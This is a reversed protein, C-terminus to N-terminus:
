GPWDIRDPGLESVDQVGLLGIAISTELALLDTVRELGARGGVALAWCQLKGALVATAGLCLAKVIDAGSQVGGDVLIPVRGDVAPAVDALIEMSAPLHDLARGGHNSVYVADAGADISRRADEGTSVGKLMLPLSVRERLWAFDEWDFRAAHRWGDEAAPVNPSTGHLRTRSFRNVIDRERRADVDHDVTLAIGRYGAAEVRGVLEALWERDGRVYLQFFLPGPSAAVVEELSPQAITPVFSSIGKAHAVAAVTAAGGPEFIAISGVPAFLFPFALEVGLFSTATSRHEVDVLLRPRFRVLDLVERNRRMTTENGAGGSAYDYVERPVSAPARELVQGITLIESAALGTPDV